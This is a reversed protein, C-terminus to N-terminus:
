LMELAELKTFLEKPLHSIKNKNLKLTKLKTLNHFCGSEFFIIDNNRLFRFIVFYVFILLEVICIGCFLSLLFLFM